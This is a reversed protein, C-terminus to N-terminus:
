LGWKTKLWAEVQGIQTANLLADYWLIEGIAGHFDDGANPQAGISLGGSSPTKTGVDGTVDVAGDVRISSSAGDYIGTLYHANTDEASGLLDNDEHIYREHGAGPHKGVRIRDALTSAVLVNEGSDLPSDYKYVVFLTTPSQLAWSVGDLHKGNNFTLAAYGNLTGVIPQRSASGQSVHHANGSKDDWQTVNNGIVTLTTPDQGDYWAELGATVPPLVSAVTTFSWTGNGAIGSFPLGALDELAGADIEVYFATDNALSMPPDITVVAGAIVVDGSTVDITQVINDNSVLRIRINGTGKQMDENFTIVLNADIAVDIAGNLPNLSSITPATVDATTFSWTGSGSIGAFPNGSLDEIAGADVEVYFATESALDAPNVTVVAGVIGVAGSNIDITQVVSDNSVLKIVVNGTGKQVDEDFTMTLNTNIVVDVAGNAPFLTDITPPTNDETTFAWTGSGTIGAFPNGGADEFAGADIEVYLGTESAFDSPDITVVPGVVGVAGSTVDITEVVVGTSLLKIVINGTGKVVAENFTIVLNSDVPVDIAGNNPSLNTIEPPADAAVVAGPPRRVGLGLGLGDESM